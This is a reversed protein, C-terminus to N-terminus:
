NTDISVCRDLYIFIPPLRTAILPKAQAGAAKQCPQTRHVRIYEVLYLAIRFFQGPKYHLAQVEGFIAEIENLMEM